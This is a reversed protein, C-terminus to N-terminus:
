LRVRQMGFEVSPLQAPEAAARSWMSGMVTDGNVVFVCEDHLVSRNPVPYRPYANSRDPEATEIVGALSLHPTAGALGDIQLLHVGSYTWSFRGDYSPTDFVDIPLAFRYSDTHGVPLLTLAHPDETADSSSGIKGFVQVGLSHPRAVDSVDFLEVKIGTRVGQANLERGVSLLLAAGTPGVIPQLYTSVGPIELEGAIFPDVPNSLDIAYLPDTVRATVVYAREGFFRVAHVQEGPKGIPAPHQTNPLRAMAILRRDTTERLVSLGHVDARSTVIRLDGRYEDMFYSANTWGIRGSVAGSARYTIDGRNLLFKHLVTMPAGDAAVGEGGVYLSDISVYVGNVNTSICNVDTVRRQNLDLATIVVLDAYADLSSLDAPLVCDRPTVLPLETGGNIRYGPLLDAASAELIRRENAQRTELTDAPLVLGALRPRYSSVLYLTDGIKRSGRLWGDLEIQWAQSVNSPDRVDLFQVITRDPQSVLTGIVPQAQLWARSDQSVAALYETDGSSSQVQYLLPVSSHEGALTFESVVQTAASVADTSVVKLVNRILGTPATGSSPVPKPVVAYVHHGDYKVLDAEDVGAVQVTTRSYGGARDSFAAPGGVVAIEPAGALSMRIGNRLADLVRGDKTAYHLAGDTSTALRLGSYDTDLKRGSSGSGGSCAVLGISTALLATAKASASM